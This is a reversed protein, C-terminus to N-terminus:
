DKGKRGRGFGKRKKHKQLEEYSALQEESLMAKFKSKEVEMKEKHVEIMQQQEETFTDKLAKRKGKRSLDENQVVEMQQKTYTAQMAKKHEKHLSQQYKLQKMQEESLNKYFEKRMGRKEAHNTQQAVMFTSGLVLLTFCIILKKMKM